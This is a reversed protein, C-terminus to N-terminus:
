HRRVYEAIGMYPVLARFGFPRGDPHPLMAREICRHLQRRDVGTAQEITAVSEGTAFRVVAQRRAGFDRREAEDLEASAVTPWTDVDIKETERSPPPAV